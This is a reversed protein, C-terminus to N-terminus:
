HVIKKFTEFIVGPSTDTEPLTEQHILDYTLQCLHRCNFVTDGTCEVQITTIHILDAAYVFQIYLTRGGIIVIDKDPYASKITELFQYTDECPLVMDPGELEESTSVVVNIRNPLKSGLTDWTKRGMVIVKGETHKRFWMMDSKIREWPLGDGLGIM